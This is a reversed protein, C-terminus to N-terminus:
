RKLKSRLREFGLFGLVAILSAMSLYRLPSYPDRFVLRVEHEGAPLDLEILGFGEDKSVEIAKGDVYAKWHPYYNESVLTATSGESAYRFVIEGTRFKWSITNLRQADLEEPFTVGSDQFRSAM